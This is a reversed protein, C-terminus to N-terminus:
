GTRRVFAATSIRKDKEGKSGVNSTSATSSNGSNNSIPNSSISNYVNGSTASTGGNVATSPGADKMGVISASLTTSSSTASAANNTQGTLTAGSLAAAAAAVATSARDRRMAKTTAIIKDLDWVTESDHPDPLSAKQNSASPAGRVLPTGVVGLSTAMFGGSASSPKDSSSAITSALGKFLDCSSSSARGSANGQGHGQSSRNPAKVVAARVRRYVAAREPAYFCMWDLVAQPLGAEVLGMQWGFIGLHAVMLRFYSSFSRTLPYWVGGLDQFWVEPGKVTNRPKRRDSASGTNAGSTSSTSSSTTTVSSTSSYCLCVRGYGRSDHLMYCIGPAHPVGNLSTPFRGLEAGWWRRVSESSGTSSTSGGTSGSTTTTGSGGLNDIRQLRDLGNVHMNGLVVVDSGFRVSWQVILGDSISYLGRLDDPVTLSGQQRSEWAQISEQTAPSRTCLKVECVGPCSELYGIAGGLLADLIVSKRTHPAPPTATASPTTQPHSAPSSANTTAVSTYHPVSANNATSSHAKSSLPQSTSPQTQYTSPQTPSYPQNPLQQQQQHQHATHSRRNSAVNDYHAPAVSSPSSPKSSESIRSALISATNLSRRTNPDASLTESNLLAKHDVNVRDNVSEGISKVTNNVRDSGSKLLPEAHM